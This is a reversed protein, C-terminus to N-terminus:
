QWSAINDKNEGANWKDAKNAKGDPGLSWIMVDGNLFYDPTAATSLKKDAVTGQRYLADYVKDDGNVDVSIVYPSGFPDRFIGDTGIGSSTDNAAQKATYYSIKRPNRAYQANAGKDLNLLIEMVESNPVAPVGLDAALADSLGWTFDGGGAKTESDKSAPFRHYDAEYSSIAARLNTMETKAQSVKAKKKVGALAPLLLGALIAIIAIVVLLEILTFGDRRPYLRRTSQRAFRNEDVTPTVLSRHNFFPLFSFRMGSALQESDPRGGMERRAWRVLSIVMRGRWIRLATPRDSLRVTPCDSQLVHPTWEHTLWEIDLQQPPPRFDKKAM